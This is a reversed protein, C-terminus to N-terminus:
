TRYVTFELDKFSDFPEFPVPPQVQIGANGPPPGKGGPPPNLVALRTARDAWCASDVTGGSDGMNAFNSIKYHGDADKVFDVLYREWMWTPKGGFNAVAENALAPSVYGPTYWFGRCSDGSESMQMMPISLCHMSIEELNQYDAAKLAQIMHTALRRPYNGKAKTELGDAYDKIVNMQGWHHMAPDSHWIERIEDRHSGRVHHYCHRSMMNEVEHMAAARRMKEGSTLEKSM